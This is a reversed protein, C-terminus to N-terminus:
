PFYVQIVVDTYSVHAGFIYNSLMASGMTQGGIDWVELAVNVGGSLCIFIHCNIVM